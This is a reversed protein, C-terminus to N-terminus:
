NTKRIWVSNRHVTLWVASSFESENYGNGRVKAKSYPMLLTSTYCSYSSSVWRVTPCSTTFLCNGQSAITSASSAATLSAVLCCVLTHVASLQINGSDYDCRRRDACQLELKRRVTCKDAFCALYMYHLM